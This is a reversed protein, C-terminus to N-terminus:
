RPPSTERAVRGSGNCEPCKEALIGSGGCPEHTVDGSCFRCWLLERGAHRCLAIGARCEAVSCRAAGDGVCSGCTSTEKKPGFKRLTSAAAEDSGFASPHLLPTSSQGPEEEGLPFPCRSSCATGGAACLFVTIMVIATRSM